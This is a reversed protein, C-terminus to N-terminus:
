SLMKEIGSTENGCRKQTSVSKKAVGLRRSKLMGESDKPTERETHKWRDRETKIGPRRGCM